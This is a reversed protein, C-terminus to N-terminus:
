GTSWAAGGSSCEGIYNGGESTTGFVNGASDLVVGALPIAGDSGNFSHSRLLKGKPSIVFVTGCGSGPCPNSGGGSTTGHINGSSDLTLQTQPLAGDSGHFTYLVKFSQASAPTSAGALLLALLSFAALRYATIQTM